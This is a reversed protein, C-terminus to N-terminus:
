YVPSIPTFPGIPDIYTYSEVLDKLGKIYYSKKDTFIQGYGNDSTIEVVIFPDINSDVTFNYPKLNDGGRYENITQVPELPIRKWETVKLWNQPDLNPSSTSSTAGLGSFVYFEDEYSVISSVVYTDNVSWSAAGEYKRPNKVRNNDIVSEYLLDYYIVKDGKEYTTFPAWEKYTKYTRIRVNFYDPSVLNAQNYPKFGDYVDTDYYPETLGPIISLFELVCNYVTSGSNVPSLYAEDLRFTVPTMEQTTKFISIDYVQHQLASTSNLSSRGTIDMIKHTLPVINRKLWYKLGQLKIIIEDLSYNLTYNGDFDTIFYTLNFMKTQEYDPNPLSYKIFDKENWGKVTNDFIDPIEVKFLQSFLKSSPNTNRYYENLQLDNYGFYNIANILSKYSGIYPYIQDKNMLMEKRKQNLFIWDIGGENIDYDKFIFVEDPSILKGVNGLEVKFRIDEEETQGYTIFRGIERDKVKFTCKLYTKQGSRPYDQIVTNEEFLLDLNYNFFDVILYKTYVNRIKVLIANNNSIYQNKTNTSDKVYIVLHQGPKLGKGTFTESSNQNIFIEGRRDGNIDTTTFTINTLNDSVIDFTIPESKYLQLVSRLAGENEAKFGIFLELAEPAISTDDSDDIYSLTYQIKDFITQQYSSYSIKTIDRNPVKSLVPDKLPKEGIYDLSGTTGLQQGSFDYMFFEDIEDTIWKWYYKVSVDGEFNERPRRFYERTKLWISERPVYNADLTGYAFDDVSSYTPGEIIISGNLTVQVEAVSNISPQLAWVSNREPNYIIKTTPAGTTQTWKVTGDTADITKIVGNSGTYGQASIYLDGDHQNIILYGYGATGQIQVSNNTALDLRYVGNNNSLNMESTLNNFIIDNFSETSINISQTVGNDIRWLSATSYVYVSEYVPEYFISYTLGNIGYTTQVTRNSNVRIVENADTTIYMDGEFSNFAMKGMKTASVPFGSTSPTLTATPISTLNNYSFIDVRALNEYTVYVDGNIPNIEMDFAEATSNSATLSITSILSNIVTDVVYLKYKSLCYLYNNTTNFELEISQTNGPLNITTLYDGYYSDIAVLEDGFLLISSSLQVYILDVLNSTGPYTSYNYSNFSYSNPSYALSFALPNFDGGLTNDFPGGIGGTPGTPVVCATQGFGINFALTIFASSNCIANTLGWFPGQYSLNLVTPDLYEIVYEQNNYPYVTNNISFAMGTAFGEQEFSFTSSTPLIVENSAILVGESGSIKKTIKYDDIGPLNIKGTSISFDLRQQTSLVNFLILNNIQKVLIGNESLIESHTDSWNKLTSPIDPLSATGYITNVGYDDDNITFQLYPGLDNFLIKSHEIYYAATDGVRVYDFQMPVNPYETRFRISNYFVSTYSGTFYLEAIIGLSYLRVFYKTLWSRLTRDITREMDIFAGSYVFITEIDYVMGNISIKIGYSDIDTFIVNVKFNSSYNYNLEKTLSNTVGIVKEYVQKSGGIAYTAGINIHYFNVETYDSAYVLDAKLQNNEYFLDVDFISFDDKYKEAASSLTISASNTWGYEFYYRDSTLYLQGVLLNETTTSQDVKIYTPEEWYETNLPNILYYPSVYSQTYATKCQRIVNDFLVQSGTAYFTATTTTDFNPISAVTYFNTNNTSGVIKFEMGPKLISPYSQPDVFIKSDPEIDIQGDYVKPVDTKTKVEIILNTNVPLSSKNVFYEFHRQDTLDVNNITLMDDNNESGVINLKKGVYVMDYFNPESWLSLNNDYSNNIYNYVGVANIGSISINTYLTLDTYQLFYTTEFTANDMQSVVMIAGKKSSIVCYTRDLNNFELFPDDFKVLTGKPFITEFNEGYIWKTYFSPDNNVPEVFTVKQNSSKSGYFHFGYENFLQFKSTTLQGVLEFDFSPVNELTYIGVTKFTDNSNEHFLIDGEWRQTLNNFSFNLYDGEKNFFYLDKEAM